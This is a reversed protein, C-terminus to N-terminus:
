QEVRNMVLKAPDLVRLGGHGHGRSALISNMAPGYMYTHQVSYTHNLNLSVSPQPARHRHECAAQRHQWVYGVQGFSRSSTHRRLLSVSEIPRDDPRVRKWHECRACTCNMCGEAEQRRRIVATKSRLTRAALYRHASTSTAGLLLGGIAPRDVCCPPRARPRIPLLFVFSLMRSRGGTSLTCEPPHKCPAGM